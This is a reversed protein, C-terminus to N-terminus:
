CWSAARHAAVGPSKVPKPSKVVEQSTRLTYSISEFEPVLLGRGLLCFAGHAALEAM